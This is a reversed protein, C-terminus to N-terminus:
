SALRRLNEELSLGPQDLGDSVQARHYPGDAEESFGYSLGSTHTLLQRVTIDAIRGDALRPAFGPLWRALRDELALKGQEILAMAAATVVPKTLSALRFLHEPALPTRSERDAFGAARRYAIRGGRAVLVVAGVLRRGAIAAELVPDLREQMAM